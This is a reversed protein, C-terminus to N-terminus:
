INLGINDFCNEEDNLYSEITKRVEKAKIIRPHMANEGNIIKNDM